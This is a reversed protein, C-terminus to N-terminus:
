TPGDGWKNPPDSPLKLLRVAQWPIFLKTGSEGVDHLRRIAPIGLQQLASFLLYLPVYLPLFSKIERFAPTHIRLSLVCVVALFSISGVIFAPFRKVFRMFKEPGMRGRISFVDSRYQKREEATPVPKGVRRYVRNVWTDPYVAEQPAEDM